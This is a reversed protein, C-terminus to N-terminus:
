GWPSDDDEHPKGAKRLLRVLQALEPRSLHGLQRRHCSRLPAAIQALLRRGQGTIEVGVVRRDNPLRSRRVYRMTELRDLLRTVDPARSILRAALTLTPVPESAAQLLRLANYQQATIGYDLFLEDEIVKLRDYTRWMQLYAQQQPSDFRPGARKRNTTTTM